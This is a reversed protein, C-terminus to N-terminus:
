MFNQAIEKAIDKIQTSKVKEMSLIPSAFEETGNVYVKVVGVAEGEEIPAQLNSM